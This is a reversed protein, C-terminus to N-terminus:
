EAWDFDDFQRRWVCIHIKDDNLDGYVKEEFYEACRNANEESLFYGYTGQNDFVEYFCDDFM